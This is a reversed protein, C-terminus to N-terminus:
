IDINEVTHAYKEILIRRPEVDDGMLDRFMENADKAEKITVQSLNRNKVDMTTEFLQEPNMEGLGKYRQISLGQEAEKLLWDFAEKQNTIVQKREGRQIYANEGLM